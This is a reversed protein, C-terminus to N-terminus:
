VKQVEIPTCSAIYTYSKLAVEKVLGTICLCFIISATREICIKLFIYSLRKCMIFVKLHM